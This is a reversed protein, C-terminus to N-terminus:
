MWFFTIGSISQNPSIPTKLENDLDFLLLEVPDVDVIELLEDDIDPLCDLCEVDEIVLEEVDKFLLLDENLPVLEDYTFDCSIM